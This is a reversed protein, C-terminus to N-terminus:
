LGHKKLKEYLTTRSINLEKAVLSKNWKHKELLMSLIAKEKEPNWYDPNAAEYFEVIEAKLMDLDIIDNDESLNLIKAMENEFERVNGPWDYAEMAKIAKDSFGKIIIGTQNSAIEMFHNILPVIDEKRDRLPPVKLSVHAIRYYLDERFIKKEMLEKVNKNTLCIIRLDVKIPANGGVRYFQGEQLTRLLKAQLNLPMDGIEDLVLTGGSALELKGTRQSSADTFAGKEHGFLENEMLNEPIAACNLAIFNGYGRKSQFHIYRALLEKGTGTEGEILVFLNSGAIKKCQALLNLMKPNVTIIEPVKERKGKDKDVLKVPPRQSLELLSHIVSIEMALGDLFDITRGSVANNTMYVLVMEQHHPKIHVPFSCFYNSNGTKFNKFSEKFLTKIKVIRNFDPTYKPTYNWQSEIKFVREKQSILLLCGKKLTSKLLGDADKFLNGYQEISFGIQLMEVLPETYLLSLAETTKEHNSAIVKSIRNFLPQIKDSLTFEEANGEKLFFKLYGIRFWQNVEIQAEKIEGAETFVGNTSELDKVHIFNSHVALEAHEKSVFTEDIYFDSKKARGLIIKKKDLPFKKIFGNRLYLLYLM